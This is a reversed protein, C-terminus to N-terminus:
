AADGAIRRVFAISDRVILEADYDLTAVHFSDPLLVETADDSSIHALVYEANSAEVVHDVASRLLLVPQNVRPLDAKVTRWLDSLSHAAKLPIKDYAVEDQGPKAIDNSIGPFSPVVRQLVPLLHRDWRETHVSPNVLVIGSLEAGHEEALRLTLTGGMSLGFVFVRTCRSQLERLQRDAEGYWDHWTTLNMDQWRTGHGPLLPVRVTWGEAALARGWPTMSAPSGTFGHVLLVGIESGDASWPEAGPKVAM